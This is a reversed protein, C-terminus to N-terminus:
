NVICIYSNYDLYFFKNELFKCIIILMSPNDLNKIDFEEYKVIRATYKNGKVRECNIIYGDLNDKFEEVSNVELKINFSKDEKYPIINLIITM